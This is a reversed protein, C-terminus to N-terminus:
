RKTVLEKKVDITYQGEKEKNEGLSSVDIVVEDKKIASVKVSYEGRPFSKELELPILGGELNTYIRIFSGNDKRYQVVLQGDDPTFMMKEVVAEMVLDYGAVKEASPKEILSDLNAGSINGGEESDGQGKGSNAGITEKTEKISAMGLFVSNENAITFAVASREYGLAVNTFNGDPVKEKRLTQGEEKPYLNEPVDKKRLLLKSVGDESKVIRLKGEEEFVEGKTEAKIKSIKYGDETDSVKIDIRDLDSRAYDNKTRSVDITIILHNAGELDDIIKYGNIKLTNFQEFNEKERLEKVCLESAKEIDGKSLSEIYDIAVEKAKIMDFIVIDEAKHNNSCGIISIIIILGIIYSMIRKM